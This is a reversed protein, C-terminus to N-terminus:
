RIDEVKPRTGHKLVYSKIYWDFYRRYKDSLKRRMEYATDKFRIKQELEEIVDQAHNLRESMRHEEVELDNVQGRLKNCEEAKGVFMQKLKAVRKNLVDIEGQLTAITGDREGYSQGLASIERRYEDCKTMYSNRQAELSAIRNLPIGKIQVVLEKAYEKPVDGDHGFCGIRMGDEQMKVRDPKRGRVRMSYKATNFCEKMIGILQRTVHNNPFRFVEMSKDHPRSM